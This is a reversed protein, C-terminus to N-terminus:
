YNAAYNPGKGLVGPWLGSVRPVPHGPWTEDFEPTPLILRSEMVTLNEEDGVAQEFGNRPLGIGRSHDRQFGRM